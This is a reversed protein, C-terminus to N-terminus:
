TPWPLWARLRYTDPGDPGCELSGGILDVRERLGTLGVGAGPVPVPGDAPPGTENAIDVVIGDGARGTVSLQVPRRPAHKRANTLGEQVIRYAHLSIDRPLSAEEISRELEIQMGAARCEEVLVDLDGVTPQPTLAAGDDDRLVGIVARLEDLALHASLRIVAASRALDGPPADPRYEIAGAHLSLMSLRHALVDHMEAAIRTREAMRAEAVRAQQELEAREARDALSVLLDRRTRTAM